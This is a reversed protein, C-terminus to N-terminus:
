AELKTMPVRSQVADDYAKKILENKGNRPFLAVPLDSNPNGPPQGRYKSPDLPLKATSSPKIDFAWLIRMISVGLSREAVHYGPCVRRGSGFAFHDRQTVDPSNISEMTTTKDHSYREPWFREPDKHRNADHGIAWANIHIRSGKPIRYGGYELEKTTVHPHGLAVPPRWRWVEKMICRVYPISDLDEFVPIRDGAVDDIEKQAKKQVDPFQLMAELFSWTSMQSTDAAAMVVMLSLYAAEELEVGFKNSNQILTRLFSEQSIGRDTSTPDEVRNLHKMSWELDRRFRARSSQEWPKLFIPLMDLFPLVDVIHSGPLTGLIQALGTEHIYGIVPNNTDPIEMGFVQSAFTSYTYRSLSDWLKSSSKEKQGASAIENLFKASEFHLFELGADAKPVSTMCSHIIRRQNKWRPESANLLLVNM